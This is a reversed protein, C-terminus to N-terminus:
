GAPCNRRDPRHDRGGPSTAESKETVDQDGVRGGEVVVLRQKVKADLLDPFPDLGPLSLADELREKVTIIRIKTLSGSDSINLSWGTPESRAKKLSTDTGAINFSNNGNM